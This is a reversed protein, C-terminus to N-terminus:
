HFFIKLKLLFKKLFGSGPVLTVEEADEFNTKNFTFTPDHLQHVKQQQEM